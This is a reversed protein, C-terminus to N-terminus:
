ETKVHGCTGSCFSWFEFECTGGVCKAEQNDLFYERAMGFREFVEFIDTLTLCAMLPRYYGTSVGGGEFELSALFARFDAEPLKTLPGYGHERLQRVDEASRAFWDADSDVLALFEDDTKALMSKDISGIQM